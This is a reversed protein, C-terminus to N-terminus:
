HCVSVSWKIWTQAFILPALIWLSTAPPLFVSSYDPLAVHCKSLLWWVGEPGALHFAPFDAPAADWSKPAPFDMSLVLGVAWNRYSKFAAGKSVHTLTFTSVRFLHLFFIFHMYFQPWVAVLSCVAIRGHSVEYVSHWLCFSPSSVNLMPALLSSLVHWWHRQCM